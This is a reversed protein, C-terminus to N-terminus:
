ADATPARRTSGPPRRRRCATGSRTRTSTRRSRRCAPTSCSRRSQRRGQRGAPHRARAHVAPRREADGRERARARVREPLHRAALRADRLRLPDPPRAGRPLHAVPRRPRPDRGVPPDVVRLAHGPPRLRRRRAAAHPRAPGRVVTRDRPREPPAARRAVPRGAATALPARRAPHRGRRARRARRGADGVHEGGRPRGRRPVAPLDHAHTHVIRLDARHAVMMRVADRTIGRAEPPETAERVAVATM